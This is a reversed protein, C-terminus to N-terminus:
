IRSIVTPINCKPMYPHHPPLAHTIAGLKPRAHMSIIGPDFYTMLGGISTGVGVPSTYM